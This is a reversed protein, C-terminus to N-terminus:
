IRFFRTCATSLGFRRVPTHHLRDTYLIQGLHFKNWTNTENEFAALINRLYKGGTRQLLPKLVAVDPAPKLLDDVVAGLLDPAVTTLLEALPGFGAQWYQRAGPKAKKVAAHLEAPPLSLLFRGASTPKEGILLHRVGCITKAAITNQNESMAELERRLISHFDDSSKEQGIQEGVGHRSHYDVAACQPITM